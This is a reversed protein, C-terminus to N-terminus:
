PTPASESGTPSTRHRPGQVVLEFVEKVERPLTIYQRRSQLELEENIAREIRPTAYAGFEDVRGPVWDHMAEILGFMGYSVLDALLRPEPLGTQVRRAVDQVLPAYHLLLKERVRAEADWEERSNEFANRLAEANRDRSQMFANWLAELEESAPHLM